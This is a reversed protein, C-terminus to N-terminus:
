SRCSWGPTATPRSASSASAARERGAAAEPFGSEAMLRNYRPFFGAYMATSPRIQDFAEKRDEAVACPLLSTMEIDAMSRGAARTGAEVQARVGACSDLTTRTLIVGDSIEGCVQLMKPFLGALYIPIERDDREFWLEFRKISVTEGEFGEVVGNTLLERIVAVAERVHAIPKGYHVGHEPEVQVRHSSGLGLVFRGESIEDVSAAAMAITPLTRVFVSSISTGLRIRSTAMACASLLAFQDGGHGEAVWMSEYGLSEAMVACDVIDRPKLGGSISFGIPGSM